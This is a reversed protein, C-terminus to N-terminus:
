RLVEQLPNGNVFIRVQNVTSFQLATQELQAQVRPADCVGGLVIRGVLRITAVGNDIRVDNITLQSQYLANYLGSEGYFQTTQALQKELTARLIAQTAPLEITVPVISDGCGLPGGTGLAVFHIRSLTIAPPQPTSAPVRIRQGVSIRNANRIQPNLQMLLAVTTNHKRAIASMTDGRQVIYTTTAVQQTPTQAYLPTTHPVVVSAGLMLLALLFVISAKVPLSFPTSPSPM